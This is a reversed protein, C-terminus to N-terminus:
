PGPRVQAHDILQLPRHFGHNKYYIGCANCMVIGTLPDKRWLPTDATGCNACAKPPPKAATAAQEPGHSAMPTGASHAPSSVAPRQQQETPSPM